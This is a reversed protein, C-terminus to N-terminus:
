PKRNKNNALKNYDERIAKVFVSVTKRLSLLASLAKPLAIVLALVGCAFAVWVNAAHPDFLAFFNVISGVTLVLASKAESLPPM